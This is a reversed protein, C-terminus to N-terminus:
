SDNGCCRLGRENMRVVLDAASPRLISREQVQPRDSRSGDTAAGVEPAIVASTESVHWMRGQQRQTVGLGVCVIHRWRCPPVEPPRYPLMMREPVRYARAESREFLCAGAEAM